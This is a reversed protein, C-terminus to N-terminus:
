DGGGGLKDKQLEGLLAHGGATVVEQGPEVGDVQVYAAEEGPAVGRLGPHTRRAQFAADGDRVFVLWDTGDRYLAAEPVATAAAAEALVIRGRGFANPKLRGGPNAADAHVWVKRTAEDVEPVLHALVGRAEFLPDSEPTFRVEQGVRVDRADAPDLALELHVTDTSAVVFLPKGAAVTEGQSVTRRVMAGAFPAAVPLLNASQTKGRVRDATDAPLGLFKLRALRDEVPLQQLDRYNVDLGLNLLTQQANAVQLRADDLATQTDLLARGAIADAGARRLQALTTTQKELTRLATALETKAKGVDAAEILALVEDKAVPEGPVKEVWWVTGAARASLQTYRAPDYGISGTATVFRTLAQTRAAAFQLGARRVDDPSGFAIRARVAPKDPTGPSVRSAPQETPEPDAAATAAPLRWDNRVGWWAVGALAALTVLTPLVGLAGRVLRRVTSVM